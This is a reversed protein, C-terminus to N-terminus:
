VGHNGACFACPPKTVEVRGRVGDGFYSRGGVSEEATRLGSRRRGSDVKKWDSVDSRLVGHVMEAAEVRIRVEEELWDRLSM